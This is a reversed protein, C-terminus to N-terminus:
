REEEERKKREIKEEEERIEKEKREEEEQAVQLERFRREKEKNVEEEMWAIWRSPDDSFACPEPTTVYDPLKPKFKELQERHKKFEEDNVKHKDECINQQIVIPPPPPPSTLPPPPVVIKICESVEAKSEEEYEYESDTCYEYSYESEEDEEQQEVGSNCGM